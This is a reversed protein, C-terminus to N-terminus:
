IKSVHRLYFFIICLVPNFVFYGGQIIKQLAWQTFGTESLATPPYPYEWPSANGESCRLSFKMTIYHLRAVCSCEQNIGSSICFVAWLRLTSLSQSRTHTHTLLSVVLTYSISLLTLNNSKHHFHISRSWKFVSCCNEMESHLCVCM